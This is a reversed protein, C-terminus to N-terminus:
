MIDGMWIFMKEMPTPSSSPQNRDKEKEVNPSTDDLRMLEWM